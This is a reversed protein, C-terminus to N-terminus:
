DFLQNEVIFEFEEAVDDFIDDPIDFLEYHNNEQYYEFLYVDEKKDNTLLAIYEKEEYEFVGIIEYTKNDFTITQIQKPM